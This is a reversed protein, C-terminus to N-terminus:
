MTINTFRLKEKLPFGPCALEEHFWNTLKPLVAAPPREAPSRPPRSAPARRTHTPAAGAGRHRTRPAAARPGDRGAQSSSVRTHQPRLTASIGPIWAPCGSGSGAHGRPGPASGQAPRAQPGRPARPPRPEAGAAGHQPGSRADATPAARERPVPSRLGCSLRSPDGAPAQLPAYSSKVALSFNRWPGRSYLGGPPLLATVQLPHRGPREPLLFPFTDDSSQEPTGTLM